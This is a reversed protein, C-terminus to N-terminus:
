SKVPLIKEKTAIPELGLRLNVAQITKSIIESEIVYDKVDKDEVKVGNIYRTVKLMGFGGKGKISSYQFFTPLNNVILPIVFVAEAFFMKSAEQETLGSLNLHIIDEKTLKPYAM